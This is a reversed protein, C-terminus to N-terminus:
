SYGYWRRLLGCLLDTLRRSSDPLDQQWSDDLRVDDFSLQALRVRNGFLQHRNDGSGGGSFQITQGPILKRFTTELVARPSRALDEYRIRQYQKPYFLGFAECALNATIWGVAFITARRLPRAPGGKKGARKIEDKTISWCVARPDRVLHVLHFDEGFARRLRFPSLTTGWATKSSDVMVRADPAIIGLLAADLEAHRCQQLAGHTAVLTGWVPCDRWPGCSCRRDEKWPKLGGITEGCSAVDPSAAMLSELLTSGSRGFGGIYVLQAM